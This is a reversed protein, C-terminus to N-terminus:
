TGITRNEHKERYNGTKRKEHSEYVKLNRKKKKNNNM